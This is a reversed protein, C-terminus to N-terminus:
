RRKFHCIVNLLKIQGNKLPHLLFKIKESSYCLQNDLQNCWWYAVNQLYNVLYLRSISLSANLFM